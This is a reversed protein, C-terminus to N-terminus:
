GKKVEATLMNSDIFRWIFIAAVIKAAGPIFAFAYIIGSLTEEAQRIGAKAASADFGALSLVSGAVLTGGIAIGSKEIIMWVASFSGARDQKYDARYKAIVDSLMSLVILGWGTNCLALFVAFIYSFQIPLGASLGWLIMTVGHGTAAIVYTTKKGIKDSVWVWFPSGAMVVSAMITALIGIQVFADDRQMSYTIFFAFTAYSLGAAVTMVVASACLYAFPRFSLVGLMQKLGIPPSESVRMSIKSASYWATLLSVSCVLGVALSVYIYAQRGGGFFHIMLPVCASGLLLGAGGFAHRWGLMATREVPDETIESFQALYPVSFIAFVTMFFTFTIVVYSLQAFQSAEPVLFLLLMAVPSLIAALLLWGRRPFRHVVRDSIIGVSLDACAGVIVKPIFIAAGAAAPPIGIVSSLFFLFLLSPTDRFLQGAVQGFGFGAKKFISIDSKSSLDSM